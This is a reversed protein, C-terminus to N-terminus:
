ASLFGQVSDRVPKALGCKAQARGSVRVPARPVLICFAASQKQVAYFNGVTVGSVASNGEYENSEQIKCCEEFPGGGWSRTLRQIGKLM